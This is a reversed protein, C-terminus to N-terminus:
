AIDGYGITLQTIASFYLPEWFGLLPAAGHRATEPFARYVAGFLVMLELYGLFGFVLSRETSPRGHYTTYVRARVRRKVSPLLGNVMAQLLVVFLRPAVFFMTWPQGVAYALAGASFAGLVVCDVYTAHRAPNRANFLRAGDLLYLNALAWGLFPM